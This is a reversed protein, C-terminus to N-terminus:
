RRRIQLRRVGILVSGAAEGLFWWTGQLHGAARTRSQAEDWHAIGM